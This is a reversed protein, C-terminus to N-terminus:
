NITPKIILLSIWNIFVKLPTSYVSNNFFINKILFTIKKFFILNLKLKKEEYEILIFINDWFYKLCLMMLHSPYLTSGQYHPPQTPQSSIIFMKFHWRDSISSIKRIKILTMKNIKLFNLKKFFIDKKFFIICIFIFIFFYKKEYRVFTPGFGASLREM